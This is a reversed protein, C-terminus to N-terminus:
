TPRGCHAARVPERTWSDYKRKAEDPERLISSRTCKRRQAPRTIRDTITSKARRRVARPPAAAGRVHRQRCLDGVPSHVARFLDEGDMLRKIVEGGDIGSEDLDDLQAIETAQGLGLNGLSEADRLSGHAPVPLFSLQQKPCHQLSIDPQRRIGRLTLLLGANGHEGAVGAGSFGQRSRITPRSRLHREEVAPQRRVDVEVVGCASRGEPLHELRDLAKEGVVRADVAARAELGTEAGGRVVLRVGRDCAEDAGIRLRRRDDEALVRGLRDVLQGEAIRQRGCRDDQRGHHLVVGVIQRPPAACLDDPRRDCGVSAEVLVVDIPQEGCPSRTASTVTLPAEFTM